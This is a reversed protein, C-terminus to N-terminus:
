ETLEAMGHALWPRCYPCDHRSIPTLPRQLARRIAPLTIVPGRGGGKEGAAIAGLANARAGPGARRLGADGPLRPPPVGAVVEERPSGVRTRGEDTPLRAGGARPEAVPLGGQDPQHGGAPQQLRVEAQRRGAGRHAVLD